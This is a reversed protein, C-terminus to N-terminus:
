INKIGKRLQSNISYVKEIYSPMINKLHNRIDKRREWIWLFAWYLDDVSSLQQVPIVYNTYTGFLDKAIGKAKVSYGVVLTPVATSYAAITSHTRAGIFIEANSIISKLQECNQDEIMYIRSTDSVNEYLFRLPIRDDNGDKVVHPILAINLETNELIREILYLYNNISIDRKKEKSQIMPSINIGIYPKSVLGSPIVPTSMELSFAPDPVLVTNPNIKVLNAFSISERAIILDYNSLDKIMKKTLNENGVSCGWLVTKCGKKRLYSNVLYIYENDGYCYNDGGISLLVDGNRYSSIIPKFSLYDFSDYSRLLHYKLTAFLYDLSLKSIKKRPEEIRCLTNKIYKRDEDPHDSFLVFNENQGILNITTRVIAECGHNGSGGHPFMIFKNSNRM